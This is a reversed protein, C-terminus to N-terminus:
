KYAEAWKAYIPFPFTAGAGTIEAAQVPMGLALVAAAALIVTATRMRPKEMSNRMVGITVGSSSLIIVDDCWPRGVRRVAANFSGARRTEVAVRQIPVARM